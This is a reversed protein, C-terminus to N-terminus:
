PLLSADAWAIGLQSLLALVTMIAFILIIERTRKRQHGHGAPHTEHACM